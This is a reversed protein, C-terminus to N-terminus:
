RINVRDKGLYTVKITGKSTGRSYFYEIQSVTFVLIFNVLFILFGVLRLKANDAVLANKKKASARATILCIAAFVLVVFLIAVFLMQDDSKKVFLMQEDSKKDQLNM